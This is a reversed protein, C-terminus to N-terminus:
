RLLSLAISVVGDIEQREGGGDLTGALGTCM